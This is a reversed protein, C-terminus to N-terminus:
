RASTEASASGRMGASAAQCAMPSRGGVANSWPDITPEALSRSRALSDYVFMPKARAGSVNVIAWNRSM